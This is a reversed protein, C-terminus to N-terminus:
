QPDSFLGSRKPTCAIADAKMTIEGSHDQRAVSSQLKLHEWRLMYSRASLLLQLAVHVNTGFSPATSTDVSTDHINMRIMTYSVHQWRM